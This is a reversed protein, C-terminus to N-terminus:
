KHDRLIGSHETGPMPYFFPQNKWKQPVLLSALPVVGDGNGYMIQIKQKVEKKDDYYHDVNLYNPTKEQNTISYIVHSDMGEVSHQFSHIVEKSREYRKKIDYLQFYEMYDDIANGNVYLVPNGMYEINPMNWVVAGLSRFIQRGIYKNLKTDDKVCNELVTVVGGFPVNIYLVSKVYKNRWKKPQNHLFWHAVLGGTSHCMFLVPEPFSEVYIRIREFLSLYYDPNDLLRFDYPMPYINPERLVEEYINLRRFPLNVDLSKHNGFDLTTLNDYEIIKRKWDEYNLVYKSIPPPYITKNEYLLKSAGLGPFLLIPPNKPIKTKEFFMSLDLRRNWQNDIIYKRFRISNRFMNFRQLGFILSTLVLINLYRQPSLLVHIIYM